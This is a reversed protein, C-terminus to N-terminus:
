HHYRLKKEQVDYDATVLLKNGGITQTTSAGVTTVKYNIFIIIIIIIIVIIIIM